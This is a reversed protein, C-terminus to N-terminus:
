AHVPGRQLDRLPRFSILHVGADELLGRLEDDMLNAYDGARIDAPPRTTAACSRGMSSRTCFVETVGPRLSRCATAHLVQAPRCGGARRCSTTPSSWAASPPPRPPVRLGARTEGSASWACRCAYEAALDLYIAYFRPDTQVTGM